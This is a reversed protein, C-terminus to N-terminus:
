GSHVIQNGGDCHQLDISLEFGYVVFLNRCCILMSETEYTGRLFKRVGHQAGMMKWPLQLRM